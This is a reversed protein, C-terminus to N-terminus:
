VRIEKGNAVDFIAIEGRMRATSLAASLSQYWDSGDVWLSGTESDTWWGVYRARLSRLFVGLAAPTLAAAAALVLPESAGGVFFGDLPLPAREVDYTGGEPSQVILSLISM